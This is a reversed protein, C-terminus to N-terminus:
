LLLAYKLPKTNQQVNVSYTVQGDESISRLDEVFLDFQYLGLLPLVNSLKVRGYGQIMDPPSGLIVNPSGHYQYMPAGAHNIFPFIIISSYMYTSAICELIYM